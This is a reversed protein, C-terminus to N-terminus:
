GRPHYKKHIAKLRAADVHTYIQTTGIDAHGLMEQVSRLDAGGKLLETAFCHRLTHPSIKKRIGAKEALKRVFMFIMERNLPLGNKSLFLINENKKDVKILVRVQEIYTTIQRKASAGIPILRQKNGKGTVTIMDDRLHLDSLKLGTLESVRLGCGYLTELIAKNREGQPNSLDVADIMKEVEEESLVEPLKRDLRPAELLEAPNRQIIQEIMLYKFFAKVGSLVRSQSWSGLGAKHIYTVFDSLVDLTVEAIPIGEKEAELFVFLLGTDHLYASQTNKSLGRELKLYTSFGNQLITYKM